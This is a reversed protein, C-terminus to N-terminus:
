TPSWLGLEPIRGFHRVNRTVLTRGNELATAAILIDPDGILQGGRRLAGRLRAFRQLIRRFLPLVSVIRLLQRFALEAARRDSGYYIGEYVEGYTMMSIAVDADPRALVDRFGVAHPSGKLYDIITDTDALHTM